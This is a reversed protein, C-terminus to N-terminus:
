EGNKGAKIVHTINSLFNTYDLNYEFLHNLGSANGVYKSDVKAKGRKAEILQKELEEITIQHQKNECSM